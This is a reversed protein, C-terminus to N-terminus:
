ISLAAAFTIPVTVSALFLLAGRAPTVTFSPDNVVVVSLSPVYKNSLRM